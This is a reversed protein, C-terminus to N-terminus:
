QRAVDTSGEAAAAAAARPAGRLQAAGRHAAGGPGQGLLGVAWDLSFISFFWHFIHFDQSVHHKKQLFNPSIRHFMSSKQLFELSIRHFM